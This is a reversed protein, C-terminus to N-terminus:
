SRGSRAPDGLEEAIGVHQGARRRRSTSHSSPRKRRRPAPPRPRPGNRGSDTAIPDAGGRRAVRVRDDDLAREEAVVLEHVELELAARRSRLRRSPKGAQCGPSRTRTHTSPGTLAARAAGPSVGRPLARRDGLRLRARRRRRHRDLHAAAGARARAPRGRRRGRRRGCRGCRARASTATSTAATLGRCRPARTSSVAPSRAATTTATSRWRGSSSARAIWRSTARSRGRDGEFAAWGLNKPPEDPELLM